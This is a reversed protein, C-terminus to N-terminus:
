LAFRERDDVSEQAIVEGGTRGTARKGQLDAKEIPLYDNRGTGGAERYGNGEGPNDPMSHYRAFVERGNPNSDNAPSEQSDPLPRLSICLAIEEAERAVTYSYGRPGARGDCDLYEYMEDLYTRSM